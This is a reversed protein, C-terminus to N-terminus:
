ISKSNANPGDTLWCKQSSKLDWVGLYPRWFYRHWFISLFMIKEVFYYKIELFIVRVPIKKLIFHFKGFFRVTVLSLISNRFWQRLRCGFINLFKPSTPIQTFDVRVFVRDSLKYLLCKLSFKAIIQRYFRYIVLKQATIQITYTNQTYSDFLVPGM